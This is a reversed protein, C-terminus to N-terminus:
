GARLRYGKTGIMIDRCLQVKSERVIQGRNLRRGSGRVPVADKARASLALVTKSIYQIMGSADYFADTERKSCAARRRLFAPGTYEWIQRM